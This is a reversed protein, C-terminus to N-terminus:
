DDCQGTTVTLDDVALVLQGRAKTPGRGRLMVLFYNEINRLFVNQNRALKFSIKVGWLLHTHM